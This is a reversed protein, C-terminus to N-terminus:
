NKPAEGMKYNIIDKKVNFNLIQGGIYSVTSAEINANTMNILLSKGYNLVIPKNGSM